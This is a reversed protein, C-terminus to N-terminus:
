VPAPSKGCEPCRGTSARLDYGCTRCFGAVGLKRNQERRWALLLWRTPPIGLLAAVYLESFSWIQERGNLYHLEDCRMGFGNWGTSYGSGQHDNLQSFFEIMGLDARLQYSHGGVSTAILTLSHHRTSAALILFAIEMAVFLGVIWIIIRRQM